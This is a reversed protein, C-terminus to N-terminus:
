YGAPVGSEFLKQAIGLEDPVVLEPMSVKESKLVASFNEGQCFGIEITVERGPMGIEFFESGIRGDLNLDFFRDRHFGSSGEGPTVDFVRMIIPTGDPAQEKKIEWDVFIVHPDVSMLIVENEGYERPLERPGAKPVALAEPLSAKKETKLSKTGKAPIKTTPSVSGATARVPKKLATKIRTKPAAGKGATTRPATKATAPSTKENAKRSRKPAKNALSTKKKKQASKSIPDAAVVAKKASRAPKGALKRKVGKKAVESISTGTKKMSARKGQGTKKPPAVAKKKEASKKM